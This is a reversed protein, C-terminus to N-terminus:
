YLSWFWSNQTFIVREFNLSSENFCENVVKILCPHMFIVIFVGGKCLCVCLLGVLIEGFVFGRIYIFNSL